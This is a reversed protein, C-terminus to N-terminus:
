PRHRLILRWFRSSTVKTIRLNTTIKIPNRFGNGTQMVILVIGVKGIHFEEERRKLLIKQEKKNRKLLAETRYRRKEM